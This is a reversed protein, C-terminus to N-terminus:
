RPSRLPPPNNAQAKLVAVNEGVNDLKTKLEKMEGSFGTIAKTMEERDRVATIKVQEVRLVVDGVRRQARERRREGRQRARELRHERAVRLPVGEGCDLGHAPQQRLDRGM